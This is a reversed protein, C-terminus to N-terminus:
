LPNSARSEEVCVTSSIARLRIQDYPSEMTFDAQIRLSTGKQVTIPAAAPDTNGNTLVLLDNESLGTIGTLIDSVGGEGKVSYTATGSSAFTGDSITVTLTPGTPQGTVMTYLDNLKDAIVELTSDWEGSNLPSGKEERLVLTDTAIEGGTNVYSM